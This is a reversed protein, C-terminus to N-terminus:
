RNDSHLEQYALDLAEDDTLQPRPRSALRDLLSNLDQRAQDASGQLYSRIADEVLQSESRGTAAAVVKAAVAIDTALYLTARTKRQPSPAPMAM